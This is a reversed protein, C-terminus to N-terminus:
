YGYVAELLALKFIYYDVEIERAADVGNVTRRANFADQRDDNFAEATKIYNSLKKGTFLGRTMGIFMVQVGIAPILVQDPKNVLDMKLLKTFKEYNTKWTLQVPGRGYYTQGTEPDPRGYPKGKGKGIERISLDFRCERWATALIYAIDRIDEGQWSKIITNMGDVHQQSMTNPHIVRRATRFFRDPHQLEM